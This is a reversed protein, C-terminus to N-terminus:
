RVWVSSYVYPARLQYGQLLMHRTIEISLHAVKRRKKGRYIRLCSRGGPRVFLCIAPKWCEKEGDLARPESVVDPQPSCSRLGQPSVEDRGLAADVRAGQKRRGEKVM